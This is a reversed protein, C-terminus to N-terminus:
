QVTTRISTGIPEGSVVLEVRRNQQRGAATDNSAVPQAEGFGAARISASPIGQQILYTKVSEARRESLSQNFEDTGVSDTHGEVELSLGPHALVIGSVKALKERAGPKLTHQGTDFLVDSMNVILGRASDRTELILNLQKMLDARLAAKEQEGRAAADKAQQQALKAEQNSRNAEARARDAELRAVEAREKAFREEAEARARREIELKQAADAEARLKAQQEAQAKAAAERDVAAQREAALRAEEQRKLTVLRADEAAQVAGRAVTSIKKKSEDKAHLSEAENLLQRAKQLGGPATTEAGAWMAIRVANRAQALDLPTKTDVAYPKLDAPVANV